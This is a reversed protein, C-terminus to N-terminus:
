EKQHLDGDCLISEILGFYEELPSEKLIIYDGGSLRAAERYEPSDHSSLIIVTANPHHTKIKQTLELGSGDPLKVDVLILDPQFTGILEMAKEGNATGVVEVSPFRSRFVIELVQRFSPNGEIIVARGMSLILRKKEWKVLLPHYPLYPRLQIKM